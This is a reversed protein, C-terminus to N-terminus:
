SLGDVQQVQDILALVTKRDDTAVDSWGELDTPDEIIQPGIQPSFIPFLLKKVKTSPRAKKFTEFICSPHHYNKMEGDDRCFACVIRLNWM